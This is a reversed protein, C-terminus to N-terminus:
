THKWTHISTSPAPSTSSPVLWAVCVWWICATHYSELRTKKWLEWIIEFHLVILDRNHISRRTFVTSKKQLHSHWPITYFSFGSSTEITRIFCLWLSWNRSKTRYLEKACDNVDENLKGQISSLSMIFPFMTTTLAKQSTDRSIFM